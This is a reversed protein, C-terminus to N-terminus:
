KKVYEIYLHLLITICSITIYMLRLINTIIKGNCNLQQQLYVSSWYQYITSISLCIVFSLILPFINFQLDVQKAHIYRVYLGISIIKLDHQINHEYGFCITEQVRLNTMITPIREIM